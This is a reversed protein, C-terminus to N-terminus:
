APEYQREFTAGIMISLEGEPDRVLYDEPCGEIRGYKTVLQLLPPYHLVNLLDGRMAESVWTPADDSQHHGAYAHIVDAVKVAEIENKRAVYNGM